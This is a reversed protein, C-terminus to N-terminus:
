VAADQVVLRVVGIGQVQEADEGVLPAPMAASDLQDAAGDCQTWALRRIM